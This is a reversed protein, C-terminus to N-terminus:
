TRIKSAYRSWGLASQYQLLANNYNPVRITLTAGAADKGTAFLTAGGTYTPPIPSACVVLTLNSAGLFTDGVKTVSAPISVSGVKTGSIISSGLTTVNTPLTITALNTAGDLLNDPLTTATINKMDITALEKMGLFAQKGIQSITSPLVNNQSFITTIKDANAFAREGITTITGLATVQRLIKADEFASKGIIQVTPSIAYDLASKHTPYRFLILNQGAVKEYLVGDAGSAFKSNAIVVYNEIPSGKAFSTDISTVGSGIVITKLLVCNSFAGEAITTLAAGMNVTSLQSSNAFANLQITQVQNTNIEQLYPSATFSTEAITIVGNPVTYSTAPRGVPYAILITMAKNFLVGEFSSYNAAAGVHISQLATCGNFASLTISQVNNLDIEVLASCNQFSLRSITKISAPLTINSLAFNNSFARDNLTEIGEPLVVNNLASCGNFASTPITKLKTTEFVISRLRDAQSFISEGLTDVNNPITIEQLSSLSFASRGISVLESGAEFQVSQVSSYYFAYQGISTVSEPIIINTITSASYFANPEISTIGDPIQFGFPNRDPYRLLARGDKSVLFGSKNAFYQNSSSVDISVLRRTDNFANSGIQSVNKSIYIRELSGLKDFAFDEIETVSEPLAIIKLASNDSVELSKFASNKIKLIGEPVGLVQLYYTKGVSFDGINLVPERNIWYGPIMLQSITGGVPSKNLSITSTAADFNFYTSVLKPNAGGIQFQPLGAYHNSLVFIHELSPPLAFDLQVPVLKEILLTKLKTANSVDLILSGDDASANAEMPIRAMIVDIGDISKPITIVNNQYSNTHIGLIIGDQFIFTESQTPVNKVHIDFHTSFGAYELTVTRNEGARSVVNSFDNFVESIPIEKFTHDNYFAVVQMGTGDFQEGVFYSTKNPSEFLVEVIELPVVHIFIHTQYTQGSVTYSIDLRKNDGVSAIVEEFNTTYSHIVFTDGNNHLGVVEMGDPDFQETQVYTNKYPTGMASISVLQNEQVKIPFNKQFSIGEYRFEVSVLAEETPHELSPEIIELNAHNVSLPELIRGNYEAIVSLGNKNFSQGVTYTTQYPLEEIYINTLIKPVVSVQFSTIKSIGKDIFLAYYQYTGPTTFRTPVNHTFYDVPRVMGYSYYAELVMGKTEFSEGVVYETKTPPAVLAVGVLDISNIYWLAGCLIVVLLLSPFLIIFSKKSSFPYM